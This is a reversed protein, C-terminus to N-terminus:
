PNELLQELEKVIDDQGHFIGTQTKTEQVFQLLAPKVDQSRNVYTMVSDKIFLARRRQATDDKWREGAFDKLYYAPVFPDRRSPHVTEFRKLTPMLQEFLDILVCSNDQFIRETCATHLFNLIEKIYIDLNESATADCVRILETMVYKIWRVHGARSIPPLCKSDASTVTLLTRLRSESLLGQPWDLCTALHVKSIVEWEEERLRQHHDAVLGLSTVFAKERKLRSLLACCLVLTEGRPPYIKLIAGVTVCVSTLVDPLLDVCRPRSLLALLVKHANVPQLTRNECLTQLLDIAIPIHIVDLNPLPTTLTLFQPILEYALEKVEQNEVRVYSPLLSCRMYFFKMQDEDYFAGSKLVQLYRKLMELYLKISQINQASKKQLDFSLLADCSKVYTMDKREQFLSFCLDLFLLFCSGFGKESLSKHHRLFSEFVSHQEETTAPGELITQILQDANQRSMKQQEIKKQLYELAIDIRGVSILKKICQLVNLHDLLPQLAQQVIHVAAPDDPAMELVRPVGQALASQLQRSLSPASQLCHPFLALAMPVYDQVRSQLFLPILRADKAADPPLDKRLTHLYSVLEKQKPEPLAMCRQLARRYLTHANKQSVIAPLSKIFADDQQMTILDCWLAHASEPVEGAVGIKQGWCEIAKGKLVADQSQGIRTLTQVWEPGIEVDGEVLLRLATEHVNQPPEILRPILKRMWESRVVRDLYCPVQLLLTACEVYKHATFDRLLIGALLGQHAVTVGEQPVKVKKLIQKIRPYKATLALAALRIMAEYSIGTGGYYTLFSDCATYAAEKEENEFARIALRYQIKAVTNKDFILSLDVSKNEVLQPMQELREKLDPAIDRELLYSLAVLAFRLEEERAQELLKEVLDVLFTDAEPTDRWVQKEVMFRWTLFTLHPEKKRLMARCLPLAFRSTAEPLINLRLASLFLDCALLIARQDFLEAILRDLDGALQVPEKSSQRQLLTVLLTAVEKLYAAQEIRNKKWLVDLLSAAESLMLSSREPNTRIVKKFYHLSPAICGKSILESLSEEEVERPLLLLDIVAQWQDRGYFKLTREARPDHPTRTYSLAIPEQSTARDVVLHISLRELTGCMGYPTTQCSIGIRRSVDTCVESFDCRKRQKMFLLLEWTSTGNYKTEWYQTKELEPLRMGIAHLAESFFGHVGLLRYFLEGGLEIHDLELGHQVSEQLLDLLLRRIRYQELFGTLATEFAPTFQPLARDHLSVTLQGDSNVLGQAFLAELLGHVQQPVEEELFPFSPLFKGLPQCM